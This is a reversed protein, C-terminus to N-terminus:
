SWRNPNVRRFTALAENHATIIAFTDKTEWTNLWKTWKAVAAVLESSAHQRRAREVDLDFQVCLYRREALQTENIENDHNRISLRTDDADTFDTRAQLRATVSKRTQMETASDTKQASFDKYTSPL